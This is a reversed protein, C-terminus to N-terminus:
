IMSICLKKWVQIFSQFVDILINCDDDFNVDWSSNLQEMCKAWQSRVQTSFSVVMSWQGCSISSLMYRGFLFSINVFDKKWSVWYHFVAFKPHHLAISWSSAGKWSSVGNFPSLGLWKRINKTTNETKIHKHHREGRQYTKINISIFSVHELKFLHDKVKLRVLKLRDYLFRCTFMGYKWTTAVM